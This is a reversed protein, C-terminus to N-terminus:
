TIVVALGALTAVPAAPSLTLTQNVATVTATATATPTGTGDRITLSIRRGRCAGAMGRVTVTAVRWRGTTSDYSPAGFVVQVGNRDCGAVVTRDAGLPGTTTGGFSAASAGLLGLGALVGVALLTARRLARLRPDHDPRCPPHM